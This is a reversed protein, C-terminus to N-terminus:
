PGKQNSQIRDRLRLHHTEIQICLISIDLEFLLINTDAATETAGLPQVNAFGAYIGPYELKQRDIVMGVILRAQVPPVETVEQAKDSEAAARGAPRTKEGIVQVM